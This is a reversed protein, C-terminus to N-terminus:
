VGLIYFANYKQLSETVWPEAAQVIKASNGGGSIAKERIHEWQEKSVKTKGLPNCDPVVNLVIDFFDSHFIDDDHIYISDKRWNTKEDWNGTAFEWYATGVTNDFDVFLKKM